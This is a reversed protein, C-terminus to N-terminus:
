SPMNFQQCIQVLQSNTGFADVEAQTVLTVSGVPCQASVMLEAVFFILGGLLLPKWYLFVILFSLVLYSLKKLNYIQIAFYDKEILNSLTIIHFIAFDLDDLIM